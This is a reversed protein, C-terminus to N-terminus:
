NFGEIQIRIQEPTEVVYVYNDKIYKNGFITVPLEESHKKDSNWKDMTTRTMYSIIDPNLYVLENSYFDTVRIFRM